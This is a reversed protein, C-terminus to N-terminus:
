GETQFTKRLVPVRVPLPHSLYTNPLPSLPLSVKNNKPEKHTHLHNALKKQSPFTKGCTNCLFNHEAEANPHYQRIHKQLLIKEEFQHECYDCSFMRRKIITGDDTKIVGTGYRKQRKYGGKFIKHLHEYLRLKSPWKKGCHDCEVGGNKTLHEQIHDRMEIKNKSYYFCFPCNKILFKKTEETWAMKAKISRLSKAVDIETEVIPEELREVQFQHKPKITVELVGTPGEYPWEYEEDLTEEELMEIGTHFEELVDVKGVEDDLRDAQEVPERKIEVNMLQQLDNKLIEDSKLAESRFAQAETLKRICSPCLFDSSKIESIGTCEVFPKLYTPSIPYM